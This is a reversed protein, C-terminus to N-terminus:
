FEREENIIYNKFDEFNNNTDHAIYLYYLELIDKISLSTTEAIEKLVCYDM